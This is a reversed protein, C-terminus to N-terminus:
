LSLKNKVLEMDKANFEIINKRIKKSLM